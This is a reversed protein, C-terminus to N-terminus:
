VKGGSGQHHTIANSALEFHGDTEAMEIPFEKSRGIEVLDANASKMPGRMLMLPQPQQDPSDGKSEPSVVISTVKRTSLTFKLVSSLSRYPMFSPRWTGPTPSQQPLLDASQEHDSMSTSSGPGLKPEAMQKKNRFFMFFIAVIVAGIVALTSVIGGAIAGVPTGGPENKISPLETTSSGFTSGGFRLLDDYSPDNLSETPLSSGSPKTPLLTSIDTHKGPMCAFVIFTRNPTASTSWHYQRCYGFGDQGDCCLTGPTPYLCAAHTYDVCATPHSDLGTCWDETSCCGRYNGINTCTQDPPCYIGPIVTNEFYGCIGDDTERRRLKQWAALTPADTPKHSIQLHQLGDQTETGTPQPSIWGLHRQPSAVTKTIISALFLLSGALYLIM